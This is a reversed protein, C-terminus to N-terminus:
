NSGGESKRAPKRRRPGSKKQVVPGNDSPARNGNNRSDSKEEQASRGQSDRHPPINLPTQTSQKSASVALEIDLRSAVKRLEHIAEQLNTRTTPDKEDKSWAEYCNYCHESTDHLRKEIDGM